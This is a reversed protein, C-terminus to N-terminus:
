IGPDSLTPGAPPATRDPLAAAILTTNEGIRFIVAILEMTIRAYILSLLTLLPVVFVSAVALAGGQSLGLVLYILGFLLVFVVVITYIVRLFKLTIFSTFGFDFLAPFFGKAEMAGTAM